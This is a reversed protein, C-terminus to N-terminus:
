IELYFLFKRLVDALIAPALSDLLAAKLAPRYVLPVLLELVKRVDHAPTQSATGLQLAALIPKIIFEGMGGGFGAARALMRAAAARLLTPEANVCASILESFPDSCKEIAMAFTRRYPRFSPPPNFLRRTGAPPWETPSLDGLICVATFLQRPPLALVGHKLCRKAHKTGFLILPLLEPTWPSDKSASPSSSEIWCRLASTLHFRATLAAAGCAAANAQGLLALLCDEESSVVAHAEILAAACATSHIPMMERMHQFFVSAMAATSSLFELAAQKNSAATAPDIAAGARSIWQRDSYSAATAEGATVLARLLLRQGDHSQMTAAAHRGYVAVPSTSAKNNYEGSNNDHNGGSDGKGDGGSVKATISTTPQWLFMTLLKLSLEARYKRRPNDWFDRIDAWDVYMSSGGNHIDDVDTSNSSLFHEVGLPALPPLDTALAKLMSEVVNSSNEKSIVTRISNHLTSLAEFGGCISEVANFVAAAGAVPCGCLDQAAVSLSSIMPEAISALASVVHISTCETLVALLIDTCIELSPLADLVKGFEDGDDDVKDVQEKKVPAAMGAAELLVACRQIVGAVLKPLVKKANLCVAHVAPIRHSPGGAFLQGLTAAASSFRTSSISSSYLDEVAALAVAFYTLPALASSLSTDLAGPLCLVRLLESVLGRIESRSFSVVNSTIASLFPRYGLSLEISMAASADAAAMAADGGEEESRAKHTSPVLVLAALLQHVRRSTMLQILTTLHVTNTSQTSATVGLIGSNSNKENNLGFNGSLGGSLGSSLGSTSTSSDVHGQALYEAMGELAVGCKRALVAAEKSPMCSRKSPLYQSTLEEAANSFITVHEYFRLIRMLRTGLVTLTRPQIQLLLTALPSYIGVYHRLRNDWYQTFKHLIAVDEQEHKGSKKLPPQKPL